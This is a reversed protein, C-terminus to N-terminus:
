SVTEEVKLELRKVLDEVSCDGQYLLDTTHGCPDQEGTIQYAEEELDEDEMTEYRCEFFHQLVEEVPYNEVLHLPTHFERSYWRCVFRLLYENDKKKVAGYSCLRMAKLLDLDEDRAM